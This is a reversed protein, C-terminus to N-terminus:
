GLANFLNCKKAEEIWELELKLISCGRVIKNLRQLVKRATMDTLGSGKRYVPGTMMILRLLYIDDV